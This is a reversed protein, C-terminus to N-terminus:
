RMEQFFTLDRLSPVCVVSRGSLEKLLFLLDQCPLGAAGVEPM